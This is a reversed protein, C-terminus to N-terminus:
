RAPSHDSAALISQAEESFVFNFFQAALTSTHQTKVIYLSKDFTGNRSLSRGAESRTGNFVLIKLRRNETKIQGLAVAGLSGELRELIDANEQDNTATLLGPREHAAAIAQSVADSLGSLIQTDTESTPRLVLRVPQGSPWRTMDGSYMQTMQDLSITDADTQMSTVIALPTTAYLVGEAGKEVEREKLPRASVSLDIAGAILAKVGGSSGLSPLVVVVADPNRREFAEGLLAMGGLAVGTGGIRITEAQALSSAGIMLSHIAGAFVSILTKRLM